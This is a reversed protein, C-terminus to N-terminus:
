SGETVMYAGKRYSEVAYGGPGLPLSASSPPIPAFIPVTDNAARLHHSDYSLVDSILLSRSFTLHSAHNPSNGEKLQLKSIRQLRERLYESNRRPLLNRIDGIVGVEAEGEVEVYSSSVAGRGLLSFAM